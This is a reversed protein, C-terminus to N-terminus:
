LAEEAENEVSVEATKRRLSAMKCLQKLLLRPSGYAKLGVIGREASAPDQPSRCPTESTQSISCNNEPLEVPIFGRCRQKEMITLGMAGNVAQRLSTSRAKLRVM